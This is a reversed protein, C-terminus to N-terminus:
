GALRHIAGALNLDKQTVGGESHTSLTFRVKNYRIDIDPHHNAAEAEYSARVVLAVADPFTGVKYQRTIAPGGADAEGGVAEWGDLQALGATIEDDNLTTM